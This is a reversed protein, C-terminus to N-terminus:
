LFMPIPNLEEESLPRPLVGQQVPVDYLRGPAYRAWFHRLGPVMVKVVPLGIESRTQDLVMLELGHREVRAQCVAIDDKLNDTWCTAYSDFTRPLEEKPVLYPQNTLTAKQLWEITDRDSLRSPPSGDAPADLLHVLMQNLETVARLLAIRPDLHAGFGFMIHETPAATRRSVAVLAPIELDSTLDLVWLDRGHTQLFARLQRVYPENFSDLDVAPVRLRNYWWLAVSDREVLELFGQLVAEELTNGAANGNSCGVCFHQGCSEPYSFYCFSTPLYRITGRTLSWVPTWDIEVEPDFRDPVYHYISSRLNWQDREQFQRDSFLMCANPHIAEDGLDVLRGRRRPEDGRFQGSYRELAECLASAKAQVDNTGKGCSSNRLDGKLNAWTRPGRAINNGSFYVHMVGDGNTGSRALMSVAGSIPSVLHGFRDLTEQPNLVRHGGDQTYTKKRAEFVLPDPRRERSAGGSGCAPCSPQRLLNHSQVVLSIADLTQLKGELPPLEGRAVWTAIASAALGWAVAQTAPTQALDISPLAGQGCIGELYSAVPFNARLRQALCEWCGTKGPRFLPGLWIQCGVPKLLLWPQGRRLAEENCADLGGRLYHDTVVVMLQGADALRVHLAELLARLPEIDVGGMAILSVTTEALRQAALEQDLQQITWFAAEAPAFSDNSEAIYGKKELQSVTYIVQAPTARSRLRACVDEVPSGDLRPAVLEYLDGQLVTQHTESLVFVGEGPVVEVQLHPKFRPRLLM